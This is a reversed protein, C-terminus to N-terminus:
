DLRTIVAAGCEAGLADIWAGSRLHIRIVSENKGCTALPLYSEAASGAATEKEASTAVLPALDFLKDSKAIVSSCVLRAGGVFTGSKGESKYQAPAALLGTVVADPPCRIEWTNVHQYYQGMLGRRVTEAMLARSGDIKDLDGCIMGLQYLFLGNTGYLGILSEGLGCTQTQYSGGFGGVMKVWPPPENNAVQQARHAIASTSLISASAVLIITASYNMLHWVRLTRRRGLYRAVARAIFDHSLEWVAQVRDLPRALGREALANLVARVEARGMHCLKVIEQESRPFKTGQESVLQELVSGSFERIAPQTVSQQIYRRVLAGADLSLAEATSQTLIYGVVNLTIPRVMGITDDMESASLVLREVSGSNLGFGSDNLFGVAASHTFRGVQFWNEKQRLGPLNLEDLAIIYDSRLVLLLRLKQVRLARLASVLELFDGHKSHDVLVLFEEFQDLVIVLGVRERGARRAIISALNSPTPHEESTKSSSVLANLTARVPDQWARAEIVRWGAERLKPLVSAQLLSTKGSGSDGTLYLPVDPRGVIWEFVKKHAQDARNFTECDATTNEYPGIRFYGAPVHTNQLALRQRMSRRHREYFEAVIQIGVVLSPLGLLIIPRLAGYSSLDVGFTEKIVGDLKGAVALAGTILGVFITFRGIWM